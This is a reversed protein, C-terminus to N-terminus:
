LMKFAELFAYCSAVVVVLLLPLRNGRRGGTWVGVAVTV